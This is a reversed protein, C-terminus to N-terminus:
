GFHISSQASIFNKFCIIVIITEDEPVVLMSVELCISIHDKLEM